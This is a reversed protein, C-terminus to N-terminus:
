DLEKKLENIKQRLKEVSQKYQLFTGLWNNRHETKYLEDQLSIIEDRKDIEKNVEVLIEDAIEFKWHYEDIDYKELIKIIREKM